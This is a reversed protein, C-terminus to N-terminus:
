PSKMAFTKGPPKCSKILEKLVKAQEKEQRLRYSVRKAVETAVGKEDSSPGYWFNRIGNSRLFALYEPDTSKISVLIGKQEDYKSPSTPKFNDEMNRERDVLRYVSAESGDPDFKWSSRPVAKYVITKEDQAIVGIPFAVEDTPNFKFFEVIYSAM